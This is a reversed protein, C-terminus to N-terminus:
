SLIDRVLAQLSPIVEELFWANKKMWLQNRPSPHVLPFFDPLYDKYHKVTKTLNEQCNQGLYYKQAYHGVLIILKLDPMTEILKQHWKLAFGKRPPLDGSKGKGPYYFDMPLFGFLQSHYFTDNDVDLWERLRIGSRDNWYLRTEQAIIGPAQGVILIRATRPAAYLPEIGKETYSQNDQDAMIAKFIDDM